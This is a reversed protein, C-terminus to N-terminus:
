SKEKTDKSHDEAFLLKPKQVAEEDPEAHDDFLLHSTGVTSNHENRDIEKSNATEPEGEEEVYQVTTLENEEDDDHEDDIANASIVTMTVLFLLSSYILTM